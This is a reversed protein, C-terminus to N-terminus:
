VIEVFGNASVRALGATYAAFGPRTFRIQNTGSSFYWFGVEQAAGANQSMYGSTQYSVTTAAGETLPATGPIEIFINTTLPAALTGSFDVSFWLFKWIKLFRSRYILPTTITMGNWNVKPDFTGWSFVEETLFPVRRLQSFMVDFTKRWDRLTAFNPKYIGTTM